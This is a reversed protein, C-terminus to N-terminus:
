PGCLKSDRGSINLGRGLSTLKVVSACQLCLLWVRDSEVYWASHDNTRSEPVIIKIWALATLPLSHTSPEAFVEETDFNLCAMCSAAVPLERHPRHGLPEVLITDRVSRRIVKHELLTNLQLLTPGYEPDDRTMRNSIQSSCGCASCTRRWFSTNFNSRPFAM